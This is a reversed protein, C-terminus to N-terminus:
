RAEIRQSQTQRSQSFKVSGSKVPTPQAQPQTFNSQLMAFTQPKMTNEIPMHFLASLQLRDQYGLSKDNFKEAIKQTLKSYLNPYVSRLAEVGESTLRRQKLDKLVNSPNEVADVYREWSALQSDSPKWEQKLGIANQEPPKPAKSYLFMAANTAQMALSNSINPAIMSLGKLNQEMMDAMASPNTMIKTLEEIRKEFARQRDLESSGKGFKIEPLVSISTPAGRTVEKGQLGSVASDIERDTRKQARELTSLATVQASVFPVLDDSVLAGAKGGLRSLASAQRSSLMNEIINAARIKAAIGAPSALAASGIVGVGAAVPGGLISGAAGGLAPALLSRGTQIGSLLDKPTVQKAARTLEATDLLDTGWTDDLVELHRKVEAWKASDKVSALKRLKEADFTGRDYLGFSKLAEQSKIANGLRANEARIAPSVNDLEKNALAGLTEYLRETESIKGLQKSFDTSKFYQAKLDNLQLPNLKLADDTLGAKTLDTLTLGVKGEPVQIGANDLVYNVLRHEIDNIQAVENEIERSVIKGSPAIKSRATSIADFLPKISKSDGQLSRDQIIKAVNSKVDDITQYRAENATVAKEKFRDLISEEVNDSQALLNKIDDSRNLITQEVDPAVGILQQRAAKLFPKASNAAAKVAQAAVNLGGSVGGSLLASLTITSLAHEAAVDPDGLAAESAVQGAGYFAGEVASGFGKTAATALIKKATSQAASDLIVKAAAGEAVRGVGAVGKVLNFGPLFTSGIVGSAEGVGSAIPNYEKLKNLKEKVDEGGIKALAVDSLGFTAGRAAGAAGALLPSDYQAEENEQILKKFDEDQPEIAIPTQDSM